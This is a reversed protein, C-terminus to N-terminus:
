FELQLSPAVQLLRARFLSRIRELAEENDAEFRLVLVPTTNSARCLGWGDAYDVRIGDITSVNGDGWDTLAALREILEFKTDESVQVNIEPTSVDEPFDAFVDDSTRDDIGLIELLRAASYLGDDFGYWREKFFIHGSMEGALLAGTEKMKAKILSHGTKWMIPRGGYGSILPNLRRTCKVDFIIDAGPNRSVVDRAFLMLLRDPYIIKGANTVVGIRDGDGDFAIGLDAQNEQVARILDQLNEPKGPDPHHNPFSGDVECYLPIVECGLEELLRPGLEGAVGNGADVVVKLPAAVAIDNVIVDIYDASVDRETVSGQGQAYNQTQIRRYLAQIADQALTEGGLVMKLGNYNAPNHSGTVMVGSGTNLHHTAFYLVPTPVQGVQIVDLGASTLGETLARALVPSSTRGDWGVCISSVGRDRGESGIARGIERVIDETLTEDVIGRIDYARFIGPPVEVREQEVIEMIDDDVIPESEQLSTVGGELTDDLDLDDIGQFLPEEDTEPLAERAPTTERARPGADSTKPSAAPRAQGTYAKILGAIRTLADNVLATRLTPMARSGQGSLRVKIFAELDAMEGQLLRHTRPIVLGWVLLLLVLGAAGGAALGIMDAAGAQVSAPQFRVQWLPHSLGSSVVPGSGEGQAVFPQLSQDVKQLLEFRGGQVSLRDLVAKADYFVILVGRIEGEVRVPAAYQIFWKKQASFAEPWITNGSEAQRIMELAAFGVPVPESFDRAASGKTFLAARVAGDLSGAVWGAADTQAQSDGLAQLVLPHAAWHEVGAKLLNLRTETAAVAGTLLRQADAQQLAEDAPRVTLWWVSALAVSLALIGGVLLPFLLTPLGKGTRAKDKRKKKSDASKAGAKVEDVVADKKKNFLGM